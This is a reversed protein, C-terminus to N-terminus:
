TLPVGGNDRGSGEAMQELHLKAFPLVFLRELWADALKSSLLYGLLAMLGWPERFSYFLFGLLGTILFGLWTTQRRLSRFSPFQRGIEKLCARREMWPLKTLKSAEPLM